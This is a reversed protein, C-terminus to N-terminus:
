LDTAQYVWLASAVKQVLARQNDGLTRTGTFGDTGRMLDTTIAISTDNGGDNYFAIWTGIPYDVSAQAPITWTEGLGGSSKYLTKGADGILLTYSLNQENIESISTDAGAANLQFDFGADDTFYLNTDSPAKLYPTTPVSYAGTGSYRATGVTMRVDDIWGDMFADTSDRCGIIIPADPNGLDAPSVGFDAVEYLGNFYARINNDGGVDRTVAWHYWVGTSIGGSITGVEAGWDQGVLRVRFGFADQIIGYQVYASGGKRSDYLVFGPGTSAQLPPLTNFRVFGEITWSQTGFDYAAIDPFTIWDSNGDLLLSSVGSNFQATDLQATGFFTANAVNVSVETYSTAGDSGDMDALLEVEGWLPDGPVGECWIQGQSTVDPDAATQAILFIVGAGDLNFGAGDIDSTWPTLGANLVFDTGDDDTFVLVNPADNRVWMQGQGAIPTIQAARETFYLPRPFRISAFSIGFDMYDSAFGGGAIGWEMRGALSQLFTTSNDAPNRFQLAVNSQLELDDAPNNLVMEGQFEWDGTIVQNDSPDFGGGGAPVSYAGSEDLYNTAAGVANLTVGDVSVGTIAADLNVVPDVATGTVNINVGGVVSDVQGSGPPLSYAGTEDLYNTAVGGATLTVGNVSVGTIAADLNAIPNIPDTADVTINIGGVVSDVQGGGPITITKTSGAGSATVGAGVFDLTDAGAALPVGEDEIVIASAVNIDDSAVKRSVTVGAEITQVEFFSTAGDLPLTALPLGSITINSM